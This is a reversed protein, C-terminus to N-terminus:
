FDTNTCLIMWRVGCLDVTKKRNYSGDTTWILKGNCLGDIIWQNDAPTEKGPEIVGWM